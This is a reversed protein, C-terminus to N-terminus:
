YGASIKGDKLIIELSFDVPRVSGTIAGISIIEVGTGGYDGINDRNVGGSVEFLVRKELGRDRRLAVAEKVMDPPMNDLMVVDPKEELAYGCEKLTEVEIEVRINKQVSGRARGIIEKIVIGGSAAKMQIGLARIHNDKILVMDWLGKRHNCGGGVTVAYKQLYRHLPITKRTDYIKVGTGRLLDVMERTRTAVGSLMGLFNLATREAKLVAQAKGEIFAIEQGAAIHDGDKVVPRFKLSPEVAAFVREVVDMGCVVGKERSVIVADINLFGELVSQSTIDGTGIDEKLASRVITDVRKKDLSM